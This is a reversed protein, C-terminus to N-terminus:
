YGGPKLSGLSLMSFFGSKQRLVASNIFLLYCNIFLLYKATELLSCGSIGESGSARLMHFNWSSSDLNGEDRQITGLQFFLDEPQKNQSLFQSQEWTKGHVPNM